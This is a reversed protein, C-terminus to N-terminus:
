VNSTDVTILTVIIAIKQSYRYRDSVRNTDGTGGFMVIDETRLTYVLLPYLYAQIIVLDNFEENISM